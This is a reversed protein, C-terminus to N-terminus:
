LNASQLCLVKRFKEDPFIRLYLFLMSSKVFALCTFYLFGFLLVMFLLNTIQDPTLAWIDRGVGSKEAFYAAPLFLSSLIYAIIITMDDWGWSSLKMWKNTLRGAIFVTPIVFLMPRLWQHIADLETLPVGCAAMSQNQAVLTEKVTCNSMVCERMIGALFTDNCICTQDPISCNSHKIEQVMCRIQIQSYTDHWPRRISLISVACIPIDQYPLDEGVVVFVSFAFSCALLISFRAFAMTYPTVLRSVPFWEHRVLIM